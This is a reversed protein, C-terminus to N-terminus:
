EAYGSGSSASATSEAANLQAKVALAMEVFRSKAAPSVTNTESSKAIETPDVQVGTRKFEFHLHPGTAWGTSGVAGIVTGQEIHQGQRVDIRSLHAYLTSREHSHKIEVVNGYGNQKGAFDVVGDGVSRVATGTPAGFDVGKHQKWTNLIPHIRMAFSSTVRSFEMPSALFSRIKSMGAMDFYAGKGSVTDNFWVASYSKGNSIFEAALVKGSSQNWTIPEGDATLAEYVVSFTDGRRLERRFDIDNAFIEAMKVAVPDPIRSADTAAFLSNRITGSGLRVQAALPVTEVSAAFQGSAKSVTLRTFHTARLEANDAPYRAILDDLRGSAGTSARVMKGGQGNLLTKAIVNSRFFAAAAPDNVNLRRLLSSATDSSRTTDSRYLSIDHTALAELQAAMVGPAVSQTVTRQTPAADDLALPALGFATAAFGALAVVIAASVGRPHRSLFAGTRRTATQLGIDLTDLSILNEPSGPSLHCAWACRLRPSTPNLSQPADGLSM